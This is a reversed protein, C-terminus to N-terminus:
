SVTPTTPLTHVGDDEPLVLTASTSRRCELPTWKTSPALPPTTSSKVGRENTPNSFRGLGVMVHKTTNSFALSCCVVGRGPVHM